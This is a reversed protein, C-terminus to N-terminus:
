VREFGSVNHDGDGHAPTHVGEVDSGRARHSHPSQRVSRSAHVPSETELDTSTLWGARVAPRGLVERTARVFAADRRAGDLLGDQVSWGASLVGRVISWRLAREADVGATDAAATTLAALEDGSIPHTALDRVLSFVDFAPDGVAPKPDIVRWGDAHRLVNGPNLDGHLLAPRPTTHILRAFEAAAEGVLSPELGVGALAGPPLETVTRVFPAYQEAIDPPGKGVPLETQRIRRQLAAGVEVARLPLLGAELLTQGPKLRELLMAWTWADQELVAPALDGPLADLAVAEWIAERHPFGIKLVAPTGDARRVSAVVAAATAPFVRADSLHWRELMSGLLEAAVADWAAKTPYADIAAHEFPFVV